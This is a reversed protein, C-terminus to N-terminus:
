YIERKKSSVVRVVESLSKVSFCRNSLGLERIRHVPKNRQVLDMQRSDIQIVDIENSHNVFISLHEADRFTNGLTKLEKKSGSETVIGFPRPDLQVISNSVKEEEKLKQVIDTGLADLLQDSITQLHEPTETNFDISKLKEQQEAPFMPALSSVLDHGFNIFAELNAEDSGGEVYGLETLFPGLKENIQRDQEDTLKRRAIQSWSQAVTESDFITKLLSSVVEREKGALCLSEWGLSSIDTVHQSTGIPVVYPSIRFMSVREVLLRDQSNRERGSLLELLIKGSLVHRVELENLESVVQNAEENDAKALWIYFNTDFYVTFQRNNM